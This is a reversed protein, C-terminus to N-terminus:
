GVGMLQRLPSLRSHEEFAEPDALHLYIETQKISSHGLIRQLRHLDGGARLYMTAGTHRFTHPGIKRGTVGAEQMVQRIWDELTNKSVPKGFEVGPGLATANHNHGRWTEGALAESRARREARTRPQQYRPRVLTRWVPGMPPAVRMLAARAEASLPVRRDDRKGTVTMADVEVWETRMSHAEGIRIMTDLLVTCLALKRPDRAAVAFIRRLEGPTFIRPLRRQPRPPVVAAAESPIRYRAFGWNCLARVARLRARATAASAADALYDEIDDITLPADGLACVLPGLMQEYWAITDPSRHAAARSRLFGAYLVSASLGATLAPEVMPSPVIGPTTPAAMPSAVYPTREERLLVLRPTM